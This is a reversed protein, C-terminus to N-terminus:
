GAHVLLRDGSEFRVEIKGDRAQMVKGLGFKPHDLWEGASYVAKPSYPRAPGRPVEHAPQAAARTRRGATGASSPASPDKKHRFRHQSGCTRCIVTAPTGDANLAVVQHAREAKCRGCYNETDDGPRIKKIRVPASVVPSFGGATAKAFPTGSGAERKPRSRGAPRM